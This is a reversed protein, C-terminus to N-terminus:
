SKENLVWSKRKNVELVLGDDKDYVTKVSSTAELVKVHRQM